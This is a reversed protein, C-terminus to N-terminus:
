LRFVSLEKGQFLLYLILHATISKVRDFGCLKVLHFTNTSAEMLQVLVQKEHYIRFKITGVCVQM